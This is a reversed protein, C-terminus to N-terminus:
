RRRRVVNAGNEPSHATEPVRESLPHGARHRRRRELGRRHRLEARASCLFAIVGAIESPSPWVASRAVRASRRWRPRATSQRLARREPRRPRRAGAVCADADPGPVRRQRHHGRARARRRAPALVVARRGEDRQLRAHGAVPAQGLDVVVNVIRAQDSARLHPLAARTCRVYSCSTSSSRGRGTPMTWSGGARRARRASTTSSSTSGASARRGGRRRGDACGEATSLDAAVGIAEQAGLHELEAAVAAAREADRGVVAVRRAQARSSRRPPWGSARRAVPSWAAVARSDWSWRPM